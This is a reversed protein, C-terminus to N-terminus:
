PGGPSSQTSPRSALVPHWEDGRFVAEDVRLVGDSDPREEVSEGFQQTPGGASFVGSLTGRWTGRELRADMTGQFVAPSNWPLRSPGWPLLGVPLPLGSANLFLRTTPLMSGRDRDLTFWLSQPASPDSGTVRVALRPHGESTGFVGRVSGLMVDGEKRRVALEGTEFRIEDNSENMGRLTEILVDWLRGMQQEDVAARVATVHLIGPERELEIRDAALIPLRNEPNVLIVGELVTSGPRPFRVGDIEAKLGTATEIRWATWTRMVPLRVVAIATTTFLAPVVCLAIFARRWIPRGARSNASFM